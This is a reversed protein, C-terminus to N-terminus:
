NCGNFAFSILRTSWYTPSAADIHEQAYWFTCGDSGDIAMSSYDGWRHCLGLQYNHCQDTQSASGPWLLVEGEMEGSPDTLVRGTVYISPYMTSSSESYGVAIDGLKDQAISGMWRYSSDPAFTGSQLLYVSSLTAPREIAEFEYWRVGAQGSAAQVTHNM